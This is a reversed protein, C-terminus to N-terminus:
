LLELIGTIPLHESVGSCLFLSNLTDTRTTSVFDIGMRPNSDHRFRFSILSLQLMLDFSFKNGDSNESQKASIAVRLLM